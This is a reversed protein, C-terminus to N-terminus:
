SMSAQAGVMRNWATRWCPTGSLTSEGSCAVSLPRLCVAAVPRDAVEADVRSSAVPDSPQQRQLLQGRPLRDGLVQVRHLREREVLARCRECRRCDRLHALWVKPVTLAASRSLGSLDARSLEFVEGPTSDLLRRRWYSAQTADIACDALWRRHLKKVLRPSRKTM